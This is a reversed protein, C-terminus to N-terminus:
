GDWGPEPRETSVAKLHSDILTSGDAIMDYMVSEVKQQAEAESNALVVAIVRLTIAYDQKM